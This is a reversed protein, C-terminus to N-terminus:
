SMSCGATSVTAERTLVVSIGHTMRRSISSYATFAATHLSVENFFLNAARSLRPKLAELQEKYLRDLADLEPKLRQSGGPEQIANHHERTFYRM